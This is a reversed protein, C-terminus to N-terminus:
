DLCQAHLAHWLQYLILTGYIFDHLIGALNKLTQEALVHRGDRRSLIMETTPTQPLPARETIAPFERAHGMNPLSSIETMELSEFIVPRPSLSSCKAFSCQHRPDHIRPHHNDAVARITSFAGCAEGLGPSGAGLEACCVGPSPGSSEAWHGWLDATAIVGVGPLESSTSGPNFTPSM